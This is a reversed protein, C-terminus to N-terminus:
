YMVTIATNLKPKSGLTPDNDMLRVQPWAVYLAASLYRSLRLEAGFGLSHISQDHEDNIHDYNKVRAADIFATAILDWDPFSFANEPRLRFSGLLPVTDSRSPELLRPLHLRYEARVIAVSDGATVSQDYGRVTYLGGVIQQLQPVLRDGFSYQGLTEVSLEQAFDYAGLRAEEQWSGHRLLPLPYVAGEGHWTFLTFEGEAGLRGLLALDKQSATGALGKLNHSVSTEMAFSWVEGVRTAFLGGGPLFFDTTEDGALSNHVGIQHWSANAFVDLFLDHHQFVNTQVRGGVSWEDGTFDLESLGVESADYHSWAGELRWRTRPVRWLPGGYDGWVANVNHLDTVYDFHLVDDRGTLQTESVGFRERWDETAKTGTNSAQAYVLWPKQEAVHYELQTAGELVGPRLVPNVRRGPQRSLEAAYDEIEGPRLLAHEGGATVPSGERIWAHEPRNTRAAASEGAFREGDAVTSVEEVRGTWILVRLATRGLPRLDKGHDEDLEPLTILVGGIGRKTFEALLARNVARLAGPHFRSGPPVADLRFRVNQAAPHPALLGDSGVRLEVETALLERPDPQGPSELAYEIEFASVPYTMAETLGSQAAAPHAAASAACLAAGAALGRLWTARARPHNRTNEVV